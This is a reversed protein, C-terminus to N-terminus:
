WRQDEEDRSSIRVDGSYDDTPISPLDGGNVEGKGTAMLWDLADQYRDKRHQPVDRNGTQSYLHYLTIDIMTTVIFQDRPDTGTEPDPAFMLAMDYRGALWKKIQSMATSEARLLKAPPEADGPASGDLLKKIEQRIQM